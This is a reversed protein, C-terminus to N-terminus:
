SLRISGRLTVIEALIVRRVPERRFDDGRRHRVRERTARARDLRHSRCKGTEHAEGTALPPPFAPSASRVCARCMRPSRARARSCGTAADDRPHRPQGGQAIRDQSPLRPQVDRNKQTVRQLPTAPLGQIHIFQAHIDRPSGGSMTGAPNASLWAFSPLQIAPEQLLDQLHEPAMRPRAVAAVCVAPSRRSPWRSPRYRRAASLGALHPGSRSQREHQAVEHTRQPERSGILLRIHHQAVRGPDRIPM